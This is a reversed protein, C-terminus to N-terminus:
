GASDDHGDRARRARDLLQRVRPPVPRSEAAAAWQKLAAKQRQLEDLAGRLEPDYRLTREVMAAAVDDLAGDMYASLMEWRHFDLEDGM